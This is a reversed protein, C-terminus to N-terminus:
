EDCVREYDLVGANKAKSQADTMHSAPKPMCELHLGRHREMASELPNGCGRCKPKDNTM